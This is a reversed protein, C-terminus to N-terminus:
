VLEQELNAECTPNLFDNVDSPTIERYVSFYGTPLPTKAFPNHVLIYDNRCEEWRLPTGYKDADPFFVWGSHSILIASIHSYKDDVFYYTDIPKGSAQKPFSLEQDYYIAGMYQQGTQDRIVPVKRSSLGFICSLDVQYDIPQNFFPIKAMSIAVIFGDNEEMHDKYGSKKDNGYYANEGKERIASCLREKYSAVPTKRAIGRIEEFTVNLDECNGTKPTTAELYFKQGDIEFCFDPCSVDKIKHNVLGSENGLQQDIYSALTLEWIQSLFDMGIEKVFKSDLYRQYQEYQAQWYQQAPEHWKETGIKIHMYIEDTGDNEFLKVRHKPQTRNM